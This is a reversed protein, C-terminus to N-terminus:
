SHSAADRRIQNGVNRSLTKIGNESKSIDQVDQIKFILGIFRVFSSNQVGLLSPLIMLCQVYTVSQTRIEM